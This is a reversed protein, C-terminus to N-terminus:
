EAMLHAAYDRQKIALHLDLARITQARADFDVVEGDYKDKPDLHSPGSDDFIPSDINKLFNATVIRCYEFGLLEGPKFEKPPDFKSTSGMLTTLPNKSNGPLDGFVETLVEKTVDEDDDDDDDFNELDDDSDYDDYIQKQLEEIRELALLCYDFHNINPSNEDNEIAKPRKSDNTQLDLGSLSRKM